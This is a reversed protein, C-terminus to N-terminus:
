SGRPPRTRTRFWARYAEMNKHQQDPATRTCTSREASGEPAGWRVEACDNPNYALEFADARALVDALTLTQPSGDSRTYVFSHAHLEREMAARLEDAAASPSSGEPLAFREPSREIRGPLARVTDIAILLRM